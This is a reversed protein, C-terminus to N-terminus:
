VFHNKAALEVQQVLRSLCKKSGIVKSPKLNIREIRKEQVTTGTHYRRCVALWGIKM